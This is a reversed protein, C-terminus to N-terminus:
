KAVHERGKWPGRYFEVDHVEVRMPRDKFLNALNDQMWREAGSRDPTEFLSVRVHFVGVPGGAATFTIRAFTETIGTEM